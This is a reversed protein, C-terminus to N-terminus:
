NGRIKLQAIIPERMRVAKPHAVTEVLRRYQKVSRRLAQNFVGQAKGGTSAKTEKGGFKKSRPSLCKEPRLTLRPLACVTDRTHMQLPVLPLVAM